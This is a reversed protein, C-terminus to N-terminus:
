LGRCRVEGQCTRITPRHAIDVAHNEAFRSGPCPSFKVRMLGSFSLSSPLSDGPACWSALGRPRALTGRALAMWSNTVTQFSRHDHLRSRVCPRGLRIVPIAKAKVLDQVFRKSVGLKRAVGVLDTLQESDDVKMTQKPKMPVPQTVPPQADDHNLNKFLKM